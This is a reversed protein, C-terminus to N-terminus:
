SIDRDFYYLSYSIYFSKSKTPLRQSVTCLEDVYCSYGSQPPHKLPLTKQCARTVEKIVRIHREIDPVTNSTSTNNIDIKMNTLEAKQPEFERDMRATNIDFGRKTYIYKGTGM